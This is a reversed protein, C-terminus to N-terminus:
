SSVIKPNSAFAFSIDAETFVNLKELDLVTKEGTSSRHYM